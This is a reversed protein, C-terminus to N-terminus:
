SDRGVLRERFSLRKVGEYTVIMLVSTIGMNLVRAGM